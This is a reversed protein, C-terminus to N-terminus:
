KGGTLAGALGTGTGGSDGGGSEGGSKPKFKGELVDKQIKVSPM